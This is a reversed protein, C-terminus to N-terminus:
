WGGSRRAMVMDVGVQLAVLLGLLGWALVGRRTRGAAHQNADDAGPLSGRWLAWGVVTVVVEAALDRAPHQYWMLGVSTPGGPWTPKGGTFWDAAWHSVCALAALAGGQWRRTVRAGVLAVGLAGLGVLPWGHPSWGPDRPGAGYLDLLADGWDPLQAAVVLVWLPPAERARRLGLAIGVHGAYM